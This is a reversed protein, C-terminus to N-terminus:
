ILNKHHLFEKMSINNIDLGKEDAEPIMHGGFERIFLMRVIGAIKEFEAVDLKAFTKIGFTKKLAKHIQRSAKEYDKRPIELFECISYLLVGRYYQHQDSTVSNKGLFLFPVGSGVM